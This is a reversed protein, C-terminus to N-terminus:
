TIGIFYKLFTSRFSLRLNNKMYAKKRINKKVNKKKLIKFEYHMIYSIFLLYMHSIIGNDKKRTERKREKKVSYRHTKIFCLLTITKM